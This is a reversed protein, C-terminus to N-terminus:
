EDGESEEWHKTEYLQDEEDDEFAISYDPEVLTSKSLGRPLFAAEAHPPVVPGSIPWQTGCPGCYATRGFRNSVVRSEAGCAQCLRAKDVPNENVEQAPAPLGFIEEDEAM